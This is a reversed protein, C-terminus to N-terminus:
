KTLTLKVRQSKKFYYAILLAGAWAAFITGILAIIESAGLGVTECTQRATDYYYKGYNYSCQETTAFMSTFSVVTVYLASVGLSIYAMLKALKKYNVILFLTFGCSFVLALSFILTEIAIGLGIGEIGATMAVIALFFAWIYGVVSAGIAVTYFALWGDLGTLSKEIVVPKSAGTLKLTESSKTDAM